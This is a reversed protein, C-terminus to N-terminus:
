TLSRSRVALPPPGDTTAVHLTAVHGGKHHVWLVGADTFALVAGTQGIPQSRWSEARWSTLNAILRETEVDPCRTM